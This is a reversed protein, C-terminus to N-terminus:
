ILATKEFYEKVFFDNAGTPDSGNHGISLRMYLKTKGDEKTIEPKKRWIVVPKKSENREIVGKVGLWMARILMAEANEKNYTMLAYTKHHYRKFFSDELKEKIIGIEEYAKTSFGGFQCKQNIAWFLQDVTEPVWEVPYDKQVVLETNSKGIDGYLTKAPLLPLTALLGKLFNRRKM